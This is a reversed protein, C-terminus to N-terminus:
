QPAVVGGAPRQGRDAGRGRGLWSGGDGRQAPRGAGAACLGGALIVWLPATYQLLVAQAAPGQTLATMYTWNMLAFFALMLLMLPCVRVESPRVLPLLVVGAFLSRFVAIQL